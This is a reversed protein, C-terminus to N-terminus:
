KVPTLGQLYFRFKNIYTESGESLKKIEHDTLVRKIKGPAGVVLSNDPVDMGEPILTKAGILCNRGIHAGNLVVAQIGILSCDGVTCGHLMAQHGVIVHRGLRLHYGPDTHLVAGDQINSGEGVTIWDSDGRVVSNFWVSSNRGLAVSGVVTANDAVFYEGDAPLEPHQQGLAYIM